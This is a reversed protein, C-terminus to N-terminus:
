KKPKQKQDTTCYDCLTPCSCITCDAKLEALNGQELISMSCFADSLKEKFQNNQLRVNSLQDVTTWTDSPFAGTLMNDNLYIQKLRGNGFTPLNDPVTGTFQNNDLFLHRISVLNIDFNNPITGTLKNQGLDMYYLKRLRWSSPITGTFFNHNLLLYRIPRPYGIAGGLGIPLPGTFSNHALFLEKLNRVNSIEGVLEGELRNRHLYLYEIQQIAMWFVGDLTGTIQNDSLDLSKLRDLLALEGLGELTGTLGKYAWEIHTVYGPGTYYLIEGTTENYVPVDYECWVGDWDCEDANPDRAGTRGTAADADATDDVVVLAAAADSGNGHLAFDLATMAFRQYVKIRHQPHEMNSPHDVIKFRDMQIMWDLAVAPASHEREWSSAGASSLTFSVNVLHEYLFSRDMDPNQETISSTNTIITTPTTPVLVEDVLEVDDQLSDLEEEKTANDGELVNWEKDPYERPSTTDSWKMDDIDQEDETTTTTTTADDIIITKVSTNSKNKIYDRHFGLSLFSIVCALAVVLLLVLSYCRCVTWRRQRSDSQLVASTIIENSFRDPNDDDDDDNSGAAAGGANKKQPSYSSGEIDSDNNNSDVYSSSTGDYDRLTHTDFFSRGNGAGGGEIDNPPAATHDMPEVDDDHNNDNNAVVVDDYKFPSRNDVNIDEYSDNLLGDGNNNNSNSNNTTRYNTTTTTTAWPKNNKRMSRISPPPTDIPSLSASASASAAAPSFHINNNITKNQNMYLMNSNSSSTSTSSDSSSRGSSPPTMCDTSPTSNLEKGDKIPTQLLSTSIAVPTTEVMVALEQKEPTRTTTTTTSAAGSDDAPNETSLLDLVETAPAVATATATVTTKDNVHSMKLLDNLLADNDDAATTAVAALIVKNNDMMTTTPVGIDGSLLSTINGIVVDNNDNNNKNNKHIENAIMV